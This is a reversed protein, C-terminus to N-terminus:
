FQVKVSTGSMSCTPVLVERKGQPAIIKLLYHRRAPDAVRLIGNRIMMMCPQEAGYRGAPTDIEGKEYFVIYVLSGDTNTVAQIAPTNALIQFSHESPNQAGPVVAYAYTGNQPAIGHSIALSFVDSEMIDDVYEVNDVCNRWTGRRHEVNADTRGDIVHYGSGAHFFWDGDRRM